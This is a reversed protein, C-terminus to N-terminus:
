GVGLFLVWMIRAHPCVQIDQLVAPSFNHKQCRNGPDVVIAAGKELVGPAHETRHASLSDVSLEEDIGHLTWYYKNNFLSV